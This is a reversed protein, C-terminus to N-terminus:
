RFNVIFPLPETEGGGPKPTSVVLSYTGPRGTHAPTLTVQLETASVFRTAVTAGALTVTSSPVFGRGILRITAEQGERAVPPVADRLQPIPNYLHKSEGGYRPFPFQYDSHFSTDVIEGNQIVKNIRKTNRIDELPNADLVVLDAL